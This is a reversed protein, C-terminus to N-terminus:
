LAWGLRFDVPIPRGVPNGNERGDFADPRCAPLRRFAPDKGGLVEPKTLHQDFDLHSRGDSRFLSFRRASQSLIVAELPLVVSPVLMWGVRRVGAQLRLRRDTVELASWLM